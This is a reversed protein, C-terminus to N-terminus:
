LLCFISNRKRHADSQCSLSKIRQTNYIENKKKRYNRRSKMGDVNHEYIVSVDNWSNTFEGHMISILSREQKM